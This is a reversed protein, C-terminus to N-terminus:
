RKMFMLFSRQYLESRWDVPLLPSLQKSMPKFAARCLRKAMPSPTWLTAKQACGRRPVKILKNHSCMVSALLLIKIRVCNCQKTEPFSGTIHVDQCPTYVNVYVIYPGFLWKPSLSDSAKNRLSTSSYFHFIFCLDYTFCATKGYISIGYQASNIMHFKTVVSFYNIRCPFCYINASFTVWASIILSFLSIGFSYLSPRSAPLLINPFHRLFVVILFMGLSLVTITLFVFM